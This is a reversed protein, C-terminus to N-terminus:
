TYLLNLGKFIRPLNRTLENSVQILLGNAFGTGMDAGLYGQSRVDWWITSDESWVKLGELAEESLFDDIVVVQPKNNFYREEIQTWNVGHRLAGSALSPTHRLHVLQNYSSTVLSPTTANFLKLLGSTDGQIPM